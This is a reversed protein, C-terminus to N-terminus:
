ALTIIALSAVSSVNDGFGFDLYITGSPQPFLLLITRIAAPSWKDIMAISV